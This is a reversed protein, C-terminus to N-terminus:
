ASSPSKSTPPRHNRGSPRSRKARRSMREPSQTGMPSFRRRSRITEHSGVLSTSLVSATSFTVDIPSATRVISPFPFVAAQSVSVPFRPSTDAFDPRRFRAGPLVNSEETSALGGGFRKANWRHDGKRRVTARDRPGLHRQPGSHAHVGDAAGVHASGRRHEKVFALAMIRVIPSGSEVRIVLLEEQPTPFAAVEDAVVLIAERNWADGRELTVCETGIASQQGHTVDVSAKVDEAILIM